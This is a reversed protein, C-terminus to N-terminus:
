KLGSNSLFVKEEASEYLFGSPGTGRDKMRRVPGRRKLYEAREADRVM